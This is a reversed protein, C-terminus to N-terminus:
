IGLVPPPPDTISSFISPRAGGDSTLCRVKPVSQWLGDGRAVASAPRSSVGLGVAASRHICSILVLINAVSGSRWSEYAGSGM